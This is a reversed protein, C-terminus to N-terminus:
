VVTFFWGIMLVSLVCYVAIIAYWWILSAGESLRLRRYEKWDAFDFYNFDTPSWRIGRKRLYVGIAFYHILQAVIILVMMTSWYFVM